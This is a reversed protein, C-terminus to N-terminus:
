PRADSAELWAKVAPPSGWAERPVDFRLFDVIERMSLESLADAQEFAGVLDNELVKRLFAGTEIRMEIYRRMGSRLHEPLRLYILPSPTALQRTV